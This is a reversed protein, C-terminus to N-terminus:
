PITTPKAPLAFENAPVTTSYSTIEFSGSESASTGTWAVYGLVGQATVCFTGSGNEDKAGSVTICSLSYGNVSKTSYSATGGAASAAEQFYPLYRSPEYLSFLEAEPNTAGSSFCMAAGSGSQSCLYSKTGLRLFEFSGSSTTGKFVQDPSQQAVTLTTLDKSTSSSIKYSALLTAHEGSQFKSLLSSGSSGASTTSTTSVAKTTATTSSPTTTTTTATTSSAAPGSTTTTTGSGTSSSSCSAALGAVAVLAAGAISRRFRFNVALKITM